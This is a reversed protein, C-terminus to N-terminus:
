IRKINSENIYEKIFAENLILTASQDSSTDRGYRSQLYAEKIESSAKRNDPTIGGLQKEDFLPNAKIEAILMPVSDIMFPAQYINTYNGLIYIDFADRVATQIKEEHDDPWVKLYSIGHKLTLLCMLAM